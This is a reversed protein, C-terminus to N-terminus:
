DDMFAVAADIFSSAKPGVHRNDGTNWGAFVAIVFGIDGSACVDDDGAPCYYVPSGSHGASGDIKLRLRKNQISAIPENELNHILTNGSSLTCGPLFQPFALNHVKTLNALVSDSASSLDMDEATGFGAASWTQELEIIAWDDAFDTGGGSGSGGGYSASFDIDDADICAAIDDRCVDVTGVAIPNNSDDSVCHAATLVQDQRLIVGSCVVSGNVRVKVATQQRATHGSFIEDRSEGEWLHLENPNLGGGPICDLHTWSAPQWTVVTGPELPAEPTTFAASPDPEDGEHEDPHRADARARAWSEEDVGDVVWVRGERDVRRMALLQDLPDEAQEEPVVFTREGGFRPENSFRAQGDYRWTIIEGQVRREPDFDDAVVYSWTGDGNDRTPLVRATEDRVESRDVTPPACGALAALVLAIAPLTSTPAPLARHM